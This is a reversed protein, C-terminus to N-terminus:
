RQRGTDRERARVAMLAFGVPLVLLALSPGVVVIRTSPDDSDVPLLWAAVEGAALAVLWGSSAVRGQAPLKAVRTAVAGFPLALLLYLPMLLPTFLALVPVVQIASAIVALVSATAAVGSALGRAGAGYVSRCTM